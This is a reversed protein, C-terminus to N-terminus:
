AREGPPGAPLELAFRSGQGPASEVTVRGGHAEAVHKVISLGIGAGQTERRLEAGRRYFLDFIRAQDEQPIGEGHDEVSVRAGAGNLEIAVKVEAGPPSHKIANDLLNVLSQEISHADWSPNFDALGAPPEEFALSVQREAANPQMLAVAQRVLAAADVPEFRYQKRGQDIRSFDLVNEILASLRRCEQVILRFYDKRRAEDPVAGRDLSEAMLRVAAIPARLEHSVSSVFNSKMQNLAVQRSYNRGLGFMAAAAALSSALLMAAVLWMRRRYSAYFSGADALVLELAGDPPPAIVSLGTSAIAPLPASALVPARALDAVTTIARRWSGTRIVVGAYSPAQVRSLRLAERWFAVYHEPTTLTCAWVMTQRGERPLFGGPLQRCMALFPREDRWLTASLNGTAAALTPKLLRMLGLTEDQREWQAKLDAIDPGSAAALLEPTLFSPARLVDLKLEALLAPPMAGPRTHRLALLMALDRYPAGSATHDDTRSFDICWKYFDPSVPDRAYSLLQEWTQARETEGPTFHGHPEPVTPYDPPDTIRGEYDLQGAAALGSFAPSRIAEYFAQVMRRALEPALESARQRAEQNVAAKDQRLFYIGLGPLLLAPLLVLLAQLLAQWHASRVFAPPKFWQRRTM